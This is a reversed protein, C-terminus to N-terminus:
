ASPTGGPWITTAVLEPWGIPIACAKAADSGPLSADWRAAVVRQGTVADAQDSCLWLIPPAMAAPPILESRDFDAELPVMPTDTPGGPVVVNVTIGSGEFEAAHGASMAELGAKCPGYPHFGGRLMTFFSTTVNIIRGWGQTRMQGISARIMNWAGSFNTATFRQWMHPTIEEIGVLNQMHDSRIAGMGMAGNNILVHLGGLRALTQQVAAECDSYESIDTTQTCWRATDHADGLEQALESLGNEDVDLAAVCASAELLARALVRGIGGAAGTLMVIRGELTVDTM